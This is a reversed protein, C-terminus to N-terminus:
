VLLESRPNLMFTRLAQLNSNNVPSQRSVSQDDDESHLHVDTSIDKLVDM